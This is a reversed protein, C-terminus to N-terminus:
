FDWHTKAVYWLIFQNYICGIDAAFMEWGEKGMSSYAKRSNLHQGVTRLDITARYAPSLPLQSSPPSQLCSSTVEEFSEANNLSWAVALIETM